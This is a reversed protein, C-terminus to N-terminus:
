SNLEQEFDASNVSTVTYRTNKHGRFKNLEEADRCMVNYDEPNDSTDLIAVVTEADTESDYRTKILQFTM